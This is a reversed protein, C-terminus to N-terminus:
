ISIESGKSKDFLHKKIDVNSPAANPSAFTKSVMSSQSYNTKFVKSANASLHLAPLARSKPSVLSNLGITPSSGTIGQITKNFSPSIRDFLAPFQQQYLSTLMNQDLGGDAVLKIAEHLSYNTANM